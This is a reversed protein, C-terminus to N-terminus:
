DISTHPSIPARDTEWLSEFLSPQINGGSLIVGIRKGPVKGELLAALSTAGSPELVMNLQTAAYRIANLIAMDSVLLVGALYQLNIPFSYNGPIDSRLGDALTQPPPIRTRKKKDLSIFTDGAGEPEVGYVRISPSHGQVALCAGAALGGSSVPVVITDLDPVDELLELVATGAGAIIAPHDNPFLYSGREAAAKQAFLSRDEKHRDYFLIETGHKRTADVKVTPTDRPMCITVQTSTLKAALSVAQAFNGSSFTLIGQSQEESSLQNILHYAGRFKFSGTQQLNECKLYVSRESRANLIDSTFIPTRHATGQLINWADLVDIYSSNNFLHECAM